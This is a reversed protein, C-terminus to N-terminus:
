WEQPIKEKHITKAILNIRAKSISFVRMFYSRCVPVNKEKYIFLSYLNYSVSMCCKKSKSNPKSVYNGRKQPEYSCIWRTLFIDQNIKNTKNFFRKRNKIVEDIKILSCRFKGVKQKIIARKKLYM